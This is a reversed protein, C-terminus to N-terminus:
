ASRTHLSVGRAATGANAARACDSANGTLSRVRAMVASPKM